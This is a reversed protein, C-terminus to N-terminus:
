KMFWQRTQLTRRHSPNGSAEDDECEFLAPVMGHDDSSCEPRRFAGLSAFRLRRYIHAANSAHTRLGQHASSSSRYSLKSWDDATEMQRLLILADPSLDPDLACSQKRPRRLALTLREDNLRESEDREDHEPRDRADLAGIFGSRKCANRSERCPPRSHRLTAPAPKVIM